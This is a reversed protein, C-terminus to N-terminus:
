RNASALRRDILAALAGLDIVRTSPAYTGHTIVVFANGQTFAVAQGNVRRGPPLTGSYSWAKSGSPAAALALPAGAADTAGGTFGKLYNALTFADLLPQVGGKDPVIAVETVFETQDSSASTISVGSGTAALGPMDLPQLINTQIPILHMDAPLDGSVSILPALTAAPSGAAQTALANQDPASTAGPSSSGAIETSTPSTSQSTSGCAAFFAALALGIMALTVGSPHRM